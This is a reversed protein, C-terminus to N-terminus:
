RSAKGGLFELYTAESFGVLLTKGIRLAPARLNGTPGLLGTALIAADSAPMKLRTVKKGKCAIVEDSERAMKM